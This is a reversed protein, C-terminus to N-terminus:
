NVKLSFLNEEIMNKTTISIRNCCNLCDVLLKNADRYRRLQQKQIDTFKWDHGINRYQMMAERLQELWLNGYNRQWESRAEIRKCKDNLTQPLQELLNILVSYLEVQNNQAIQISAQLFSKPKYKGLQVM